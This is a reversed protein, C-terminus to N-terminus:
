PHTLKALDQIAKQAALVVSQWAPDNLVAENDYDNRTPSKHAVLIRRFDLLVHAEHPALWGKAQADYLQRTGPYSCVFEIYSWHPNRNNPDLWTRRQLEIDALDSLHSLWETRLIQGAEPDSINV